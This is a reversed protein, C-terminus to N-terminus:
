KRVLFSGGYTAESIDDVVVFCGPDIERSMNLIHSAKKRKVQVFLINVVGDRGRGDTITVRYGATRLVDAIADGHVTFVRVIQEGMKLFKEITIGVFTGSAFGGAFALATLTDTIGSSMVASVAYVWIISEVFAVCFAHLRKGRLIMVHRFTGLSVDMVRALFILLALILKSEIM